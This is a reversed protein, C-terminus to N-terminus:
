GAALKKKVPFLVIKAIQEMLKPEAAVIDVASVIGVLQNRSIVPLRKVRRETMSDAADEIETEPGVAVVETTMFEEVKVKSPLKNKSVVERMIDSETIIGALLKKETVILCGIRFQSMLKAAEQISSKPSVTKVDATMIDKVRM